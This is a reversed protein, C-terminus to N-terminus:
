AAIWRWQREFGFDSTQHGTSETKDFRREGEQGAGMMFHDLRIYGTESDALGFYTVNKLKIEERNIEINVMQGNREVVLNAKTNPAGKLANGVEDSSKGKFNKGNIEVIKDGIKLGAKDAALGKFIDSIYIYDERKISRSGIGGYEGSRMIMADEAQSETYYNTYPDLSALMADIGVKMLEGPKPEDVYDRNVTKYVAGFIELNKSIEFYDNATQFAVFFLALVSLILIKKYKLM